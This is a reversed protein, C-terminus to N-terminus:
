TVGSQKTHAATMRHPERQPVEDLPMASFGNIIAAVLGVVIMSVGIDFPLATGTKVTGLILLDFTVVQQDLLTGGWVLPLLSIVAMLLAGCAILAITRRPRHLGAITRLVVVAGFVLGATFGGGPSNHGAFLLYVGVVIALPSVVRIGRAIVPAQHPKM